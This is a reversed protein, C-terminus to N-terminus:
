WQQLRKNLNNQEKGCKAQESCKERRTQSVLLGRLLVDTMLSYLLGQDSFSDSIRSFFLFPLFETLPNYHHHHHQLHPVCLSSPSSAYVSVLRSLFLFSVKFPKTQLHVCADCHKFTYTCEWTTLHGWGIHFSPHLLNYLSFISM